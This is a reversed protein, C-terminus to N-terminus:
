RVQCHTIIRANDLQFPVLRVMVMVQMAFMVCVAPVAVSNGVLTEEMGKRGRVDRVPRTQM